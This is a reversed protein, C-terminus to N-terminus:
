ATGKKMACCVWVSNQKDYEYILDYMGTTSLDPAKNKFFNTTGVNISYVTTMNIQVLIQSITEVSSSVSPPLLTIAGTPTVVNYSNNTLNSTGSSALVNYGEKISYKGNFHNEGTASLNSLDVDVAFDMCDDVYDLMAQFNENYTSAKAKQGAVAQELTPKTPKPM